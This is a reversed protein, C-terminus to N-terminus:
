PSLSASVRFFKQPDTLASTTAISSELAVQGASGDDTYPGDANAATQVKYFLGRVANFRLELNNGDLARTTLRVPSDVV